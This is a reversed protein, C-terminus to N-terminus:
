ELFNNAFKKNFYKYWFTTFKWTHAYKIFFPFFIIISPNYKSFWNRCPSNKQINQTTRWSGHSNFSSTQTNFITTEQILALHGLAKKNWTKQKWSNQVCFLLKASTKTKLNKSTQRLLLFLDKEKKKKKKEKKPLLLPFSTVCGFLVRTKLTGHPEHGNLFYIRTRTFM